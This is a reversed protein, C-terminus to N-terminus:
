RQRVAAVVTEGFEPTVPARVVLLRSLLAGIALDALLESGLAEQLLKRRPKLIVHLVEIAEADPESLMALVEATERMIEAPDSSEPPPAILAAVLVGKSSWRRYITTKAIGTREALTDVTFDRYGREELLERAATLITEDAGERRPRGRPM